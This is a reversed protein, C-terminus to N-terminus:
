WMMLMICTLEDRFDCFTQVESLAVSATTQALSEFRLFPLSRVVSLSFSAGAYKLIM